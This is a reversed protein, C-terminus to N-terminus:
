KVRRMRAMFFGDFGTAAPSIVKQEELEFNPNQSLFWKIQWENESPFISCTAYVLAGSQLMPAYFSLIERQRGEIQALFDPSLRWKLDPQRRLTGSGSCPADILIREFNQARSKLKEPSLTELCSVGNRSARRRLEILKEGEPDCSIIHGRNGMLAALHLSKGGAGACADLVKMGSEVQLFPAVLQSAADQFEFYGEQYLSNHSISRRERLQLADPLGEIADTLIDKFELRANLEDRSIKLTNARVVVPAEENLARLEADWRAGLQSEGLEDLWDPISQRVARPLDPSELRQRIVAADFGPFEDWDPLEHGSRVLQAALLAWFDDSQAGWQLLRRWRVIEYTTEAVFVRDRKGWKLNQAFLGDLARSAVQKEEFISQLASVIAFALNRHLKM